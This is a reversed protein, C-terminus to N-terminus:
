RKDVFSVSRKCAGESISDMLCDIVDLGPKGSAKTCDAIISNSAEVIWEIRNAAQAPVEGDWRIHPRIDGHVGNPWTLKVQIKRLRFDSKNSVIVSMWCGGQNYLRQLAIEILADTPKESSSLVRFTGDSKLLISRGDRTSVTEDAAAMWPLAVLGLLAILGIVKRM